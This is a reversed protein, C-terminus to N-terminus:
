NKVTDFHSPHSIKKILWISFGVFIVVGVVALIQMGTELQTVYEGLRYGIFILGGTWIGEALFIAPFWRRFRVHAMGAAILAPVSM